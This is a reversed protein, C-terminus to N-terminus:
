LSHRGGGVKGSNGSRALALPVGGGNNPEVLRPGCATGVGSWIRARSKSRSMPLQKLRLQASTLFLKQGTTPVVKKTVNADAATLWIRPKNSPGETSAMSVLNWNDTSPMVIKKRTDAMPPAMWHMNM